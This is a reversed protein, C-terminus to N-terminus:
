GIRMNDAMFTKRFLGRLDISIVQNGVTLQRNIGFISSDLNFFMYNSNTSDATVGMVTPISPPVEVVINDDNAWGSFPSDLTAVGGSTYSIITRTQDGRSTNRVILGTYYDTTAVGGVITVVPPTVDTGSVSDITTTFFSRNYQSTFLNLLTLIGSSKSPLSNNLDITCFTRYGMPNGREYGALTQTNPSGLFDTREEFNINWVDFLIPYPTGSVVFPKFTGNTYIYAGMYIQFNQKNSAM